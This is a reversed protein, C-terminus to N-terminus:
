WHRETILQRDHSASLFDRWLRLLNRGAETLATTSLFRLGARVRSRSVSLESSIRLSENVAVVSATRMRFSCAALFGRIPSTAADHETVTVDADVCWLMSESAFQAIHQFMSEYPIAFAAWKLWILDDMVDVSVPRVIRNLVQDGQRLGFVCRVVPAFLGSGRAGANRRGHFSRPRPATTAM